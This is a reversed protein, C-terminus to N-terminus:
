TFAGRVEVNYDSYNYGKKPEWREGVANGTVTLSNANCRHMHHSTISSLEHVLGKVQTDRGEDGGM